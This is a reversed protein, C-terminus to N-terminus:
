RHPGALDELGAPVPADGAPPRTLEEAVAMGFPWAATRSSSGRAATHQIVTVDDAHDCMRVCLLMLAVPTPSIAFV